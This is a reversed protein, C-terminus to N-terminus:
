GTNDPMFALVVNLKLELLEYYLDASEWALTDKPIYGLAKQENIRKMERVYQLAKDLLMKTIFSKIQKIM